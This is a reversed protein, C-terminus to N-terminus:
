NPKAKPAREERPYANEVIAKELDTLEQPVDPSPVFHIIQKTKGDGSVRLIVTGEDRGPVNEYEDKLREVKAREVADIIARYSEDSITYTRKGLVRTFEKGEYEVSRDPRITMEYAPCNNPCSVRGYYITVKGESNDGSVSEARPAYRSGSVSAMALLLIVSLVTKM